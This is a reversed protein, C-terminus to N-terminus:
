DVVTEMVKFSLQVRRKTYYGYRNRNGYKWAPLLRRERNEVVIRVVCSRCLHDITFLKCYAVNYYIIFIGPVLHGM